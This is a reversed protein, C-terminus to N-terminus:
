AWLKIELVPILRPQGDLDGRHEGTKQAGMSEYFGQAKPDAEIKLVTVGQVRSREMAHHFLSRGIGQEMYEPLVWLNDLWLEGDSWKLSYYAIPTGDVYAAWTENETIYEPSVTLQPLWFQMWKEPYGWHAKAKAMIGSLLGALEPPAPQITYKM